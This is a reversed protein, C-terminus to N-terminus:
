PSPRLPQTNPTPTLTILLHHSFVRGEDTREHRRRTQNRERLAGGRRVRRRACRAADRETVPGLRATRLAVAHRFLRAQDLFPGQIARVKEPAHRVAPSRRRNHHAVADVHLVRGAAAGLELLAHHREVGIRALDDPFVLEVDKLAVHRRVADSPRGGGRIRFGAVHIREADARHGNRQGLVSFEEPLSREALFEGCEGGVAAPRHGRDDVAVQHNDACRDRIPSRLGVPRM